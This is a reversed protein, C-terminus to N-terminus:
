AVGGIDEVYLQLPETTSAAPIFYSPANASSAGQTRNVAAFFSTNTFGSVNSQLVVSHTGAGFRSDYANNRLSNNSITANAGATSVDIYTFPPPTFKASYIMTNASGHTGSHISVIYTSDEAGKTDIVFGTFNLTVKYYRNAGITVRNDPGGTGTENALSVIEHTTAFDSFSASNSSVTKLRKVGQPYDDTAEKVQQTNTSMQQLRDGTIPTGDTWSVQSYNEYAM